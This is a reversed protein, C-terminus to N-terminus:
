HPMLPYVFEWMRVTDGLVLDFGLALYVEVKVDIQTKQLSLFFNALLIAHDAKGGTKVDIVQQNTLWTKWNRISPEILNDLLPILSVFHVCKSITNIEEPPAQAKLFRPVIWFAGNIDKAALETLKTRHEPLQCLLRQQWKDISDMLPDDTPNSLKCNKNSLEPLSPEISIAVKLLLVSSSNEQQGHADDSEEFSLNKEINPPFHTYGLHFDPIDLRLYEEICNQSYISTFPISIRGIMMNETFLTDEDEYYGGSAKADFTIKDFMEIELNDKMNRLKAPSYDDIDIPLQLTQRWLPNQGECISTQRISSQFTLRIFSKILTKGSQGNLNLNTSEEEIIRNERYPVNSASIISVTIFHNEKITGHHSPISKQPRLIRMRSPLVPWSLKSFPVPFSSESIIDNWSLNTGSHIKKEETEYIKSVTEYAQECNVNQRKIIQNIFAGKYCFVPNPKVQIM